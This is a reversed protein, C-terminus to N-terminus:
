KNHPAAATYQSEQQEGDGGEGPLVGYFIRYREPVPIQNGKREFKWLQRCLIRGPFGGRFLVQQDEGEDDAGQLGVPSESADGGTEELCAFLIRRDPGGVYIDQTKICQILLQDEDEVRRDEKWFFVPDRSELSGITIVRIFEPSQAVVSGKGGFLRERLFLEKDVRLEKLPYMPIKIHAEGVFELMGAGYGIYLSAYEVPLIYRAPM